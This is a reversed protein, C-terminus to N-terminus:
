NVVSLRTEPKVSVVRNKGAAKGEYLGKDAHLLCEDITLQKNYACLGFTITINIPQGDLDIDSNEIEVRVMEAAAEAQKLNAGVLLVLFEEGGWRGILDGRRFNDTMTQAVKKLIIDGNLHGHQDNIEKFNDIDGLAFVLETGMRNHRAIERKIEDNLARRNLLNTLTDTTAMKELELSAEHLQMESTAAAHSYVFSLYALISMTSVMNFYKVLYLTSEEIHYVVDVALSYRHMSIYLIAPFILAFAKQLVPMKTYLFVLPAVLLMYVAFGSDWGIFYVCLAAHTTAEFFALWLGITHMGKYNVYLCTSFILVSVINFLVLEYVAFYAFLFIFAAHLALGCLFVLQAGVFFRYTTSPIYPSRFLHM